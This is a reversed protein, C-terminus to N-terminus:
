NKSSVRSGDKSKGYPSTYEREAVPANRDDGSERVAPLIYQPVFTHGLGFQVRSSYNGAFFAVLLDLEPVITIVQGGAGLASVAHVTRDKYPFDESWWNYGYYINALHYKKAGAAKVFEQGLIRRGEWTGGNLMLQGFKAFDRLTFMSGGGGYPNAAHDLNWAYNGFKMPGGILRDFSYVPMEKTARGVVGLALNPNSSCYVANEGPPTAMPVNLTYEYFDPKATQDWMTEENGPAADNGDDCFYGASMTLLNELVMARKMPELDAPFTGDNMVQYVPSTLKLPAGAHIVAGTLVSTVSKGASRTMHLKDRHEGHFYEELVVKGHRAVLVGHMQLADQADMPMDVLKQVFRELAPRDINEADLTSTPWGDDFRPPAVYAYHVPIKGRPYFDSDDRDRRFTYTGGRGPFVLTFVQNEADFSGVGVEREKDGRKGILTLRDGDRALREVRQQTGFDFEPNRLVASLSGDPRQEGLLLFITWEDQLPNVQGRWRNPGDPKLLVPSLVSPAPADAGSVPTGYRYWHGLINKGERKGRFLGLRNPLEFVLEGNEVRVATRRGLMDASYNSGNAEIILPGSADPGFRNKATWLGTLEDAVATGACAFLIL